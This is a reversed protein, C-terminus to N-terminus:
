QEQVTLMRSEIKDWLQPSVRVAAEKCQVMLENAYFYNILANSEAESLNLWETKLKLANCWTLIIQASFTRRVESSQRNNPAKSKLTEFQDILHSFNITKFIKIKEFDLTRALVLARDIYQESGFSLDLDLNLGLNIGIDFTYAIDLTYTFARALTHDHDLDLALALPLFIAVVRKAAPNFNGESDQTEKDAWNILTHLKPTNIYTQAQREMQLLLPDVGGRMLGAALQFVERWHQDTLHKCVVQEVLNNDAGDHDAIHQATLYEQLTLHSFSFVDRAREVLIGQQVQIAQLIVEGDLHKPANL